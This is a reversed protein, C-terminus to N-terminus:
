GSYAKVLSDIIIRVDLHELLWQFVTVIYANRYKWPKAECDVESHAAVAIPLPDIAKRAQQTIAPNTTKVFLPKIREQLLGALITSLNGSAAYIESLSYAHDRAKSCTWPDNLDTFSALCTLINIVHEDQSLPEIKQLHALLLIGSLSMARFKAVEDPTLTAKDETVCRIDTGPLQLISRSQSTSYPSPEAFAEIPLIAEAVWKRLFIAVGQDLQNHEHDYEETLYVDM